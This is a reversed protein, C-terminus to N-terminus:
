KKRRYTLKFMEQDKGDAIQYMTFVFTDKDKFEYVNKMKQLKGDQGPGEGTETFTKGDPSFGGEMVFLSPSMSDIWAGVYKKKIPDYGVAGRGEFKQGLFAGQFEERLWFGGLDLKYTAAAKSEQGMMVVTVDWDGVFAKLKEHEPGPKPMPPQAGLPSACFALCGIILSLLTIRM